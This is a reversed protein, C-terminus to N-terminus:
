PFSLSLSSLYLYGLFSLFPCNLSSLVDVALVARVFLCPGVRPIISRLSTRMFSVKSKVRKHCYEYKRKFSYAILNLMNHKKFFSGNQMPSRLRGIRLNAEKFAQKPIKLARDRLSQLQVHSCCVLLQLSCEKAVETSHWLGRWMREEEERNEQYLSRIRKNETREEGEEAEEGQKTHQAVSTYLFTHQTLIRIM